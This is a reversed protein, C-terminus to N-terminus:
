KVWTAKCCPCNKQKALQEWSKNFWTAKDSCKPCKWSNFFYLRPQEIKEEEKLFKSGIAPILMGLGCAGITAIVPALPGTTGMLLALGALSPAALAGGLRLKDNAKKILHRINPEEVKFLQYQDYLIKMEAFEDTFNLPDAKLKKNKSQIAASLIEQVQYDNIALTLKDEDAIFKRKIREGNVFTGYKSDLDEILYVTPGCVTIIAHNRSINQHTLVIKNDTGRGITIQELEINQKPSTM